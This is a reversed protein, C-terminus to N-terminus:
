DINQVTCRTSSSLICKRKCNSVVEVKWSQSARPRSSPVSSFNGLHSKSVLKIFPLRIFHAKFKWALALLKFHQSVDLNSYLLWPPFNIETGNILTQFPWIESASLPFTLLRFEGRHWFSELDHWWVTENQLPAMSLWSKDRYKNDIAWSFVRKKSRKCDSAKEIVVRQCLDTEKMSFVTLFVIKQGFFESFHSKFKKWDCRYNETWIYCVSPQM